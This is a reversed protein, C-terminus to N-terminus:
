YCNPCQRRGKKIADQVTVYIWNKMGSCNSIRHYCKGNVAMYVMPGQPDPQATPRRTPSDTARDDSLGSINSSGGSSRVYSDSVVGSSIWGMDGSPAYVEQWVKGNTVRSHGLLQLRTGKSVTAVIEANINANKRINASSASVYVYEPAPTETPRSTPTPRRTPSPTPRATPPHKKEADAFGAQYGLKQGDERGAAYGDAYGDQYNGVRIKQSFLSDFVDTNKVLFLICFFSLAVTFVFVVFTSTRRQKVLRDFREEAQMASRRKIEEEVAPFFGPGREWQEPNM